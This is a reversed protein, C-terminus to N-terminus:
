PDARHQVADKSKVSVAPIECCSCSPLVTDANIAGRVSTNCAGVPM